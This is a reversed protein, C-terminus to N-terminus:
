PTPTAEPTFTPSPTPTAAPVSTLTAFVTEADALCAEMQELFSVQFGTVINGSRGFYNVFQVQGAQSAVAVEFQLTGITRFTSEVTWGRPLGRGATAVIQCYPIDRHALAPFGTENQILAWKSIDYDVRFDFGPESEETYSPQGTWAELAPTQSEPTPLEPTPLLTPTLSAVLATASAELTEVPTELAALHVGDPKDSLPIFTEGQGSCAVCLLVLFIVTLLPKRM